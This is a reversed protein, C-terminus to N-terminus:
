VAEVSISLRAEVAGDIPQDDFKVYYWKGATDPSMDIDGNPLVTGNPIEITITAM